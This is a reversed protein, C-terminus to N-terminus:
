ARRGRAVRRSGPQRRGGGRLVGLSYSDPTFYKQSVAQLDEPTLAQIREIYDETANLPREYLVARTLERARVPSAQLSIRLSGALYAKARDLEEVAVPEERLRRFERLLADRARGESEPATATYTVFSGRHRRGTHFAMVTYALGLRGRVEAFFRGGLGSVVQAVADLAYRDPSFADVTAFGIAAATQERDRQVVREVVGDREAPEAPLAPADPGPSGLREFYRELWEGFIDADVHGAAAVILPASTASRHWARLADGDLGAIVEPLGREPYAYPHEGYAAADVLDIATDLGSDQARRIAALLADKERAVEDAPFAPDTAVDAALELAAPLREAPVRFAFGWSDLGHVPELSSGLAEFAAAIEGATRSATGKLASRVMLNTIGATERTEMLRGGPWTLEVAVVPANGSSRVALTGCRWERRVATGSPVPVGAEGNVPATLRPEPGTTPVPAPAWPTDGPDRIGSSAPVYELVSLREPTLYRAAVASVEAPKVSLLRDLWKEALRYDGLAEFAALRRARGLADETEYLWRAKLRTRIREMESHSPPQTQLRAVEAWLAQLAADVDDSQSEGAVVFFGIDRFSMQYAQLATAIGRERVNRYLRSSRGDSLIAGLVDLASADDHLEPVTHWGLLALRQLIDGRMQCRRPGDPSPESPGPSEYREGAGFRYRADILRLVQEPNIDGSVVVITNDPRYRGKYYRLVDERTIARLADPEGMRWRRIRHKRFALNLLSETALAWANDRKQLSEQIVVETEKALEGADILANALADSQIDLADELRESPVVCYYTTEEYFTSANLTGGIAKTARAIDEPGPRAPTGKFFMHELLHSVGALRDEEDFYGTRVHTLVAAVSDSHEEDLLVTLGNDLSHRITM